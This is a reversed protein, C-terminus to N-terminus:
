LMNIDNNMAYRSVSKFNDDYEIHDLDYQLWMNSWTKGEKLLRQVDENEHPNSSKQKTLDVCGEEDVTACYIDAEFPRKKAGYIGSSRNCISRQIHHITLGWM